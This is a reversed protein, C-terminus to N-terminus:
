QAMRRDPFLRVSVGPRNMQFGIEAGPPDPLEYTVKYRNSVQDFHEGMRTAVSTLTNALGTATAINEYIGGTNQTLNTAFSTVQSGGRTTLMVTHITVGGFVLTNLLDAYEDDNYNSGMLANDTLVLMFVPFAEEDEFRREWTEKIGDLLVSGAGSDPFILGVGEELEDRDTTFDVLRQTNRAISFLGIEHQPPLTDLFANLGSRLPVTANLDNIREGNDVLMAIRMPTDGPVASVVTVPDGDVSVIFDAPTLDSVPQGAGDLAEVYLSSLEQGAVGAPMLVALAGVALVLVCCSNLSGRFMALSGGDVVVM